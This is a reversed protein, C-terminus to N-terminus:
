RPKNLNNFIEGVLEDVQKQDAELQAQAIDRHDELSTREGTRYILNIIEEDSIINLKM